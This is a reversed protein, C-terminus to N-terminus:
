HLWCDPTLRLRISASLWRSKRVQSEGGSAIAKGAAKRGKGGEGKKRSTLKKSAPNEDRASHARLNDVTSQGIRSAPWIREAM